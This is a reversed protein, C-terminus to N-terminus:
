ELGTKVVATAVPQSDTKDASADLYNSIVQAALTASTIPLRLAARTRKSIPGTMNELPDVVHQDYAADTINLTTTAENILLPTESTESKKSKTKATSQM